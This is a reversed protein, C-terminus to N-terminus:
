WNDLFEASGDPLRRADGGLPGETDVCQVVLVEADSM